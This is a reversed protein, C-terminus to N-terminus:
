NSLDFVRQSEHRTKAWGLKKEHKCMFCVHTGHMAAIRGLSRSIEQQTMYVVATASRSKILPEGNRSGHWRRMLKAARAKMRGLQHRRYGRVTHINLLKEAESIKM